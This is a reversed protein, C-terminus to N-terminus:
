KRVHILGDLFLTAALLDASGGPSANLALLDEDLKNFAMRGNRTSFGGHWLINEASKKTLELAEMGGRHLLCTDDLSSMIAILADIRSLVEPINNKRSKELFPLGYNLVHPFGALAEGRAGSVGYKESVKFGNTGNYREPFYEALLSANKTIQDPSKGPVTMAAGSVLLGLSFIAGKHANVGETAQFMKEEGRIGIASITEQLAKDPKQKYSALAIEYFCEKLSLASKIMIEINLDKHAGCSFLDVLAPKPSLKAEEILAEVALNSLYISCSEATNLM